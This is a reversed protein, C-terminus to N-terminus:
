PCEALKPQFQVSSCQIYLKHESLEIVFHSHPSLLSQKATATNNFHHQQQEMIDRSSLIPASAASGALWHLSTHHHCSCPPPPSPTWGAAANPGWSVLKHIPKLATHGTLPLIIHCSSYMIYMNFVSHLQCLSTPLTFLKKWKLSIMSRNDTRFM